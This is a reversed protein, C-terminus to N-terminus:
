LMAANALVTQFESAPVPRGFLYGQFAHCGLETLHVQQEQTEVGEAILDIGMAGSLSVIAKAIASSTPDNLMDRVFARDIKLQDLPLRKLYALSSYGTGFDDLSFQVGIAKLETMLAIVEEVNELFMSETIELKLSGPPAGTRDLVERVQQAFDTQRFQRASVNVAITMQRGPYQERWAKLQRCAAELVMSGLPVILGTEEALPIFESPPLIGREPHNWRLLAEAGVLKGHDLQPQYWLLFQSERIGHRMEDELKARANVAAQLAPAFFRVTNRGAAKAQYMAIDAQQLADRSNDEPSGFITIGVSATSLCEHGALQYTQGISALVKEAVAKAHAAAEEASESLDELIVVFEDGGLRAVTDTERTCHTLRLSVEQLLLDGIHHGLTDNLMKFDDLDVFLLAGMRNRRRSTALSKVLRELLLRRNPLGTLPDFFALNRIEEAAAKAQSVDRTMSLVCPEGDLEIRSASMVGWFLEGNKKRFRAELDRCFGYRDLLDVMRQRDNLDDWIGLEVSTHGVVEEHTFGTIDLFSRNCEIYRGDSVRNLNVADVTMQFAIRYREESARLAAQATALRQEAQKRDNIDQVLTLFHLPRGRRDHRVSITLMVWTLSGDKRQYRKEFSLSDVEGSLLKLLASQGMGRDQTPTLEQFGRGVLEEAAYGVIQAFRENCKLIKGQLSTHLIGLAAQEFSARYKEESDRLLRESKKRETIDEVAGVLGVPSGHEGFVYRLNVQTWIRSGDSCTFHCEEGYVGQEEGLRAVLANRAEPAIWMETGADFAALLEEPGDYGLMTALEHNVRQLRGEMDTLLLGVPAADLMRCWALEQSTQVVVPGPRQEVLDGHSKTRPEVEAELGEGVFRRAVSAM